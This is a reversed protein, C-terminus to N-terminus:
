RVRNFLGRQQIVAGGATSKQVRAQQVIPQAYQAQVKQVRVQQVPVIQYQIQPQVVALPVSPVAYPQVAQFQVIPAVIQASQCVQQCQASAVPMFLALCVIALAVVLFRM